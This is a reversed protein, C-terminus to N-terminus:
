GSSSFFWAIRQTVPEGPRFRPWEEANIWDAIRNSYVKLNRHSHSFFIGPSALRDTVARIAATSQEAPFLQLTKREIVVDYPGPCMAPDMLDGAIFDVSGRVAAVSRGGILKTLMDEPPDLERNGGTVAPSLDLATVDFGALALARPEQSLGNGVCLVTRFGNARMADVLQGDNIFMHMFGVSGYEVQDRWWQDWAAPDVMTKPPRMVTAAM